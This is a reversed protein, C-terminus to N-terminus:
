RKQAPKRRGRLELARLALGQAVSTFESGGVIRDIAFRREFLNRVAPVFSSGGTLFVRDVKAPAVGAQQLLNDICHEIAHLEEAIWDEFQTRTVMGSIEIGPVRFSFLSDQRSSLEYKTRQVASHLQFGLDETILLILNEIKEPEVAQVRLSRLADMNEKSKLFSLHHWHELKAYPWNPMIASKGMQRYLSGRGLLPAVLHRVLKADLSDGAIGVGGNALIREEASKAARAQPGIRILTFDTTGGGFDAVLLLEDQNLRAEYSFAAAVPELEFYVDTIGAMALAERLREVAYLDDAKNKSGVFRVPRGVVAKSGLPIGSRVAAAKLSRLLYAVLEEFRYSRGFLNTHRLTSSSLYSKISQILRGGSEAHLYQHIAEPGAYAAMPQRPVKVPPAFFLISRFMEWESDHFAFRATTAHGPKDALAVASNTTGFDIGIAPEM